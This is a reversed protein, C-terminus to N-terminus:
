YPVRDPNALWADFPDRASATAVHELPIISGASAGGGMAEWFRRDDFGAAAADEPEAAYVVREVRAWWSAAMCMPCPHCSAYVVCGSLDPTALAAGAARLAVVEAHATADCAPVVQNTGTALLSGGPGVVVAGFPGGGSTASAVALRVAHELHSV